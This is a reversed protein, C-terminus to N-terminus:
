DKKFGQGAENKEQNQKKEAGAGHGENVVHRM